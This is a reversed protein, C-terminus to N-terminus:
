FYANTKSLLNSPFLLHKHSQARSEIHIIISKSMFLPLWENVLATPAEDERCMSVGEGLIDVAKCPLVMLHRPKASWDHFM